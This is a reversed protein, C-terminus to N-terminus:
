QASRQNTPYADIFSLIGESTDMDSVKAVSALKAMHQPTASAPITTAQALWRVFNPSTMLNAVNRNAVATTLFLGLMEPNGTLASGAAVSPFVANALMQGTGSPNAGSISTEKIRSAVSAIRDLNKAYNELKQSGSFLERRSAEGLRNWDTLFKAASFVEGTQDQRGPTAKGLRRVVNAAVVEWEEPKLSRKFARIVGAGEGGKTVSAFIKDLDVKKAVREVFDDLRGHGSRTYNNARTFAQTAQPGAAAAAGRIDESIAGYLRKLEARPIDSVLETGELRRGVASRLQKLTQYDIADVDDMAQAMRVLVPNNLIEGFQDTRVMQALANKSNDLPVQTRQGIIQDVRNWLQSSTARFRDVFGGPGSIGRQITRGAREVGAVTSVDDALRRLQSQMGSEIDKRAKAIPGGGWLQSQRTEMGEVAPRRSAQGVTPPRGTAMVFDDVTQAVAARSPGGMTRKVAESGAAAIGGMAAPAAMSGVLGGVPGGIDEGVVQGAGAAAGGAIDQMPTTSALQRLTGRGVSEGATAAPLQRAAARLATGAGLGAAGVEGAAAAIDRGLGPEMYGGQTAPALAQTLTPVRYDSGALQLVANAQDPGLFDVLGTVARNFGAMAELPAAVVTPLRSREAQRSAMQMTDVQPQGTPDSFDSESALGASIAKERIADKSTGDPVGRIVTGNPLKVDM